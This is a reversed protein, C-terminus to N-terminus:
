IPEYPKAKFVAPGEAAILYGNEDQKHNLLMDRTIKHNVLDQDIEPNGFADEVLNGDSDIMYEYDGSNNKGSRESVAMFIPYDLRKAVEADIFRNRLKLISDDNNLLLQLKGKNTLLLKQEEALPIEKEYSKIEAKLQKAKEKQGDKM